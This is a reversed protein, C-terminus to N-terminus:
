LALPVRREVPRLVSRLEVSRLGVQREVPESPLEGLLLVLLVLLRASEQVVLWVLRWMLAPGPVQVEACAAPALPILSLLEGLLVM